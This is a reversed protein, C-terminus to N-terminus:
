AVCSATGQANRLSLSTGGVGQACTDQSSISVTRHTQCSCCTGATGWGQACWASPLHMLKSLPFSGREPDRACTRGPRAQISSPISLGNGALATSARINASQSGISLVLLCEVVSSRMQALFQAEKRGEREERKEGGRDKRTYALSVELKPDERKPMRLEPISHM